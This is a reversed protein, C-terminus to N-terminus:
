AGNGDSRAPDPPGMMRIEAVLRMDILSMGADDYIVMERGNPSAAIFEPHNVQFSRGDALKVAFPLFPQARMATRVQDRTAM